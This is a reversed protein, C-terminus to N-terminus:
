HRTLNSGNCVPMCTQKVIGYLGLYADVGPYAGMYRNNGHSRYTGVVPYAVMHRKQSTSHYAGVELYADM